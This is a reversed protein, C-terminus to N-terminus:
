QPRDPAPTRTENTLRHRTLELAQNCGSSHIWLESTWDPRNDDFYLYRRWALIDDNPVPASRSDGLFTFEGSVRPGCNPCDILIV